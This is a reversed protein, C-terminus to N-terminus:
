FNDKFIKQTNELRRMLKLNHAVGLKVSFVLGAERCEMDTGLVVLRNTGLHSPPPPLLLFITPHAPQLNIKLKVFKNKM